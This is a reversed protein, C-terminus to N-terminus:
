GNLWLMLAMPLLLHLCGNRGPLLLLQVCENCGGDELKFDVVRDHSSALKIGALHHQLRAFTRGPLHHSQATALASCYLVNVWDLALTLTLTQDLASNHAQGSQKAPNNHSLMSREIWTFNSPMEVWVTACHGHQFIHLVTSQPSLLLVANRAGHM